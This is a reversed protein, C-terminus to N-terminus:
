KGSGLRVANKLLLSLLLPLCWVELIETMCFETDKM